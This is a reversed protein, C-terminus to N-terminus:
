SPNYSMKGLPFRERITQGDIHAIFEISNGAKVGFPLRFVTPAFVARSDFFLVIADAQKEIKFARVAERGTTKLWAQPLGDSATRLGVLALVLCSEYDAVLPKQHLREIALRVPAASEWRVTISQGKVPRAWPSNSLIRHATEASWESAPQEWPDGAYATIAFTLFLLNTKMAM